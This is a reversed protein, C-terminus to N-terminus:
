ASCGPSKMRQFYCGLLFRRETVATWVWISVCASAAAQVAAQVGTGAAPAPQAGLGPCGQPRGGGARVCAPAAGCLVPCSPARHSRPASLMQCGLHQRGRSPCYPVSSCSDTFPKLALSIVAKDVGGAQVACVTCNASLGTIAEQSFHTKWFPM